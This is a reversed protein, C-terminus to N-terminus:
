VYVSESRSNTRIRNKCRVIPAVVFVESILVKSAQLMEAQKVKRIM